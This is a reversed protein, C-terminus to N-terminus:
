AGHCRKFKKGSGCPCPDNRGAKPEARVPAPKVVEGDVFYWRGEIRAFTSRERHTLDHGQARYRAVFEVMGREDNPGGAETALVTLGLWESERAWQDTTERDVEARTAPEHTAIIYDVERRAYATYRSRMLAEATPAPAGALYPGCCEAFSRGTGCPCGELSREASM